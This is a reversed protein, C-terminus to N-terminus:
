LKIIRDWGNRLYGEIGKGPSYEPYLDEFEERCEQFSDGEFLMMKGFYAMIISMSRSRGQNCRVFIPRLKRNANIFEFAKKFIPDTYEVKFEFPADVLNLTLVDDTEHILYNPHDSSVKGVANIFWPSKACNVVAWGELPQDKESGYFLNDLVQVM